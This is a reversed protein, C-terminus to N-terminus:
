AALSRPQRAAAAGRARVIRRVLVRLSIAAIAADTDAYATLLARKSDPFRQRAQKLFSVGDM